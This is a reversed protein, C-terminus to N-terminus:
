FRPTSVDVSNYSPQQSQQSQQPPLQPAPTIALSEDDDDEIAWSSERRRNPRHNMFTPNASPDFKYRYNKDFLRQVYPKLGRGFNHTVLSGFVITTISLAIALCVALVWFAWSTSSQQLIIVFDVAVFGHVILFAIMIRPKETLMGYRAMFPAPFQCITLIFHFVYWTIAAPSGRHYGEQTMVVIWFISFVIHFFGDLKLNLLFIQCQRFRAQIKPDAGLRKYVNWGFQRLLKVCLFAFVLTLVAMLVALAIEFRLAKNFSSRDTTRGTTDDIADISSNWKLTESLQVLALIVCILQNATHAMLQIISQRVIADIGLYLQFVHFLIFFVNEDKLRKLSILVSMYSNDSVGPRSLPSNPSIGDQGISQWVSKTADEHSVAIFAELIIGLITSLTIATTYAITERSNKVRAWSLQLIRFAFNPPQRDSTSTNDYFHDSSPQTQLQAESDQRKAM